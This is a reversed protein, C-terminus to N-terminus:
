RRTLRRQQKRLFGVRGLLWYGSLYFGVFVGLDIVLNAVDFPDGILRCHFGFAGFLLRSGVYAIILSLVSRM